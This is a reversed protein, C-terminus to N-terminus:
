CWVYNYITSWNRERPVHKNSMWTALRRHAYSDIHGFKGTSNGWKFYNHWGAPTRNCRAVIAALELGVNCRGTIDRPRQRISNM